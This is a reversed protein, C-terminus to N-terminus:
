KKILNYFDINFGYLEEEKSPKVISTYSQITAMILVRIKECDNRSLTSLTSYHVDTASDNHLTQIAAIRLNTHHQRILPSERNLHIQTVGAKLSRNKETIIGTQLLFLLIKSVTEESAGIAEAIVKKESFGDLTILMHVALYHWSSYYVSQEFDTLTRAEGVHSKINFFDERDKQLKKSYFDKLEKTGAREKEILLIFFSQENQNLGLFSSIKLGQESSFDAAGNLVRSVYGNQCGIADAIKSRFGREIPKRSEEFDLLFSRYNNFEFIKKM